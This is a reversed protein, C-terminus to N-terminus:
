RNISIQQNQLLKITLHIVVKEKVTNYTQDLNFKCSDDRIPNELFDSEIIEAKILECFVKENFFETLRLNLQCPINGLIGEECPDCIEINNRLIEIQEPPETNIFIPLTTFRIKAACTFPVRVTTHRIEGSTTGDTSCDKTAYEVNKRIFGKIFLIGFYPDFVDPILNCQELYVNKLIRKIELAPSELKFKSEISIKITPEALVVPAKIVVANTIGIVSGPTNPCFSLIETESSSECDRILDCEDFNDTSSYDEESCEDECYDDNESCEDECYDDEESYEDECYDDEESFNEESYEDTYYEEESFDEGSSDEIYEDEESFYEGSSDEIYEDEESFNEESSDEIYEDEESFNEEPSDEIYEDEESFNEEPSDEIYEDEESFNEESSDEIYYEESPSNEESSDETYYEERSFNEEPLNKSSHEEESYDEKLYEEKCYSKKYYTENNEIPEEHIEECCGKNEYKKPADIMLDEEIHETNVTEKLYKDHHKKHHKKDHKKDHKKHHKTKKYDEKEKINEELCSRKSHHKKSM